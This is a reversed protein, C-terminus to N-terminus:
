SPGTCRDLAEETNTPSEDLIRVCLSPDGLVELFADRGVVSMHTYVVARPLGIFSMLRCIEKYLQQLIERSVGVHTCKRGSANLRTQIQHGLVNVYCVISSQWCLTQVSIASCSVRQDAFVPM